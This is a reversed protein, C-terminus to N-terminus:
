TAYSAYTICCISCLILNFAIYVLLNRNHLLINAMCCFIINYLVDWGELHDSYTMYLAYSQMHKCKYINALAKCIDAYAHMHRSISYMHKCINAYTQMHKAYTKVHTCIGAQVHGVYTIFISQMHRAYVM